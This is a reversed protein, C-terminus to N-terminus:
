SKNINMFTLTSTDLTIGRCGRRQQCRESEPQEETWHRVCPVLSCQGGASALLGGKERRGAHRGSHVERASRRVPLELVARVSRRDVSRGLLRRDECRDEERRPSGGSRLVSVDLLDLLLLLDQARSPAGARDQDAPLRLPLARRRGRM